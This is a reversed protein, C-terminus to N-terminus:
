FKKVQSDSISSSSSTTVSGISLSKVNAQIASSFQSYNPSNMIASIQEMTLGSLQASTLSNVVDVPM